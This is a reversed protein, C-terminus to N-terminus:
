EHCLVLYPKERTVSSTSTWTFMSVFTFVLPKPLPSVAVSVSALTNFHSITSTVFLTSLSSASMSDDGTKADVILIAHTIDSFEKVLHQLLFGIHELFDSQHSECVPPPPLDLRLCRHLCCKFIIDSAGYIKHKYSQIRTEKM